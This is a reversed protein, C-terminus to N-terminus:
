QDTIPGLFVAQAGTGGFFGKLVITYSKGAVAEFNPLQTIVSSTGAVVASVDFTGPDIATYSILSTNSIHDVYTRSAFLKVPTTGSRLIDISSNVNAYNFFRLFAKGTPPATRDDKFLNGKIVSVSDYVIASYYSNPNLGVSGSGVMNATGSQTFSVASSAANILQYSSASGYSVNGVVLYSNAYVDLAGANPSLNIFRLNTTATSATKNCSTAIVLLLVLIIPNLLKKMLLIQQHM